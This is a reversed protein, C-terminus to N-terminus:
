KLYLYHNSYDIIAEGKLLIDAGIIGDVPKTKYQKLAENVHIMNFVVLHFRRDYWRGLQIKNNKAIQTEM